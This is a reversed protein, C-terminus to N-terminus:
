ARRAQLQAALTKVLPWSIAASFGAFLASSILLGPGFRELGAAVTLVALGGVIGSWGIRIPWRRKAAVLIGASRILMQFTFGVYIGREGITAMLGLLAGVGVVSTAVTVKLIPAGLGRALFHNHCHWWPTLLVYGGFLLAMSGSMSSYAALNGGVALLVRPLVLVIGGGLLGLALALGTYFSKNDAELQGFPTSLARRYFQPCWVQNLAGAVLLMVSCVSLAFTFRGVDGRTLMGDILYNTGFGSLWGLIAIVAFPSAGKLLAVAVDGASGDSDRGRARTAEVATLAVLAGAASGFFFADVSRFALFCTAGCAVASLAPFFSLAASARHEERLRVVQSRLTAYGLLLGGVTVAALFPLGASRLGPSRAIAIATALVSILAMVGFASDVGARFKAVDGSDRESTWRAVASEFLGAACFTSIGQQLSYFLGFTGYDAVSLHQALWVFVVVGAAKLLAASAGYIGSYWM